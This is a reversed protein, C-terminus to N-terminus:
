AAEAQSAPPSWPDVQEFTAMQADTLDAISEHRWGTTRFIHIALPRNLTKRKGNLIDSAYGKSIGALEALEGTRPLAEM